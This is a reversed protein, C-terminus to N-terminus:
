KRSSLKIPAKLARLTGDVVPDIIDKENKPEEICCPSAIHFLYDCDSAAEEWGEDNLLNLKCFELKENNFEIGLSKRVEDERNLDRLSGKVEYGNKLLELICHLAIYGSAGTVLVKGQNVTM